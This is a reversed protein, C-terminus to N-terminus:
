GTKRTVVCPQIDTQGYVPLRGHVGREDAREDGEPYAAAACTLYDFESALNQCSDSLLAVYFFQMKYYRQMILKFGVARIKMVRFCLVVSGTFREDSMGLCWCTKSTSFCSIEDPFYSARRRRGLSAWSTRRRARAVGACRSGRETLIGGGASLGFPAEMPDTEGASRTARTGGPRIELGPTSPPHRFGYLSAVKFAPFSLDAPRKPTTVGARLVASPRIHM